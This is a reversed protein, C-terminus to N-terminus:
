GDEVRPTGPTMHAYAEEAGARVRGRAAMSRLGKSALAASFATGFRQAVVLAVGKSSLFDAMRLGMARESPAFPNAIVEAARNGAEYIFYYPARSARNSIEADESAEVAAVAVRM